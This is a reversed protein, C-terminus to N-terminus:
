NRELRSIAKKRDLADEETEERMKDDVDPSADKSTTKRQAMTIM